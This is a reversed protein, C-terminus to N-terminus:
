ELLLSRRDELVDAALAPAVVAAPIGDGDVYQLMFPVANETFSFIFYFDM